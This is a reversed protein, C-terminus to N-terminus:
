RREPGSARSTASSIRCRAARDGDAIRGGGVADPIRTPSPLVSRAVPVDQCRRRAWRRESLLGSGAAFDSGHAPMPVAWIVVHRTFGDSSASQYISLANRSAAM